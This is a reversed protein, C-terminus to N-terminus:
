NSLNKEKRKTIYYVASFYGIIGILTVVSIATGIKLGPTTYKFEIDYEGAELGIGIFGINTKIVEIEEGNAYATWGKAYPMSLNLVSDETLTINGTFTNTSIELNELSNARLDSVTTSFNDLNCSVVELSDFTYEGTKNFRLEIVGSESNNYGVNISHNENPFYRQGGEAYLAAVTKSDEDLVTFLFDADETKQLNKMSLYLESNLEAGTYNLLIEENIDNITITKNELDIINNITTTTYDSITKSVTPVYNTLGLGEIESEDEVVVAELMAFQRDIVDIEGLQEITIYNSYSFGLNLYNNNEYVYITRTEMNGDEDYVIGPRDYYPVELTDMLTYGFPTVSDQTYYYRIGNLADLAIRNNSGIYGSAGLPNNVENVQLFDYYYKNSISSYMFDSSYDLFAGDNSTRPQWLGLNFAYYDKSIRYFEEDTELKTEAQNALTTEFAGNKLFLRSYEESFAFQVLIISIIISFCMIKKAKKIDTFKVKYVWGIIVYSIFIPVIIAMVLGYVELFKETGFMEYPAIISFLIIIFMIIAGMISINKMDKKDWNKLEKLAYMIGFVTFLSLAYTWRNNSYNFLNLIYGSYNTLLALYSGTLLIKFTKNDSRRFFIPLLLFGITSVYLCTYNLADKPVFMFAIYRAYFYDGYDTVGKGASRAAELFGLGTPILMFSALVVGVIYNTAFKIMTLIFHKVNFKHYNFYRIIIFLITFITTMYFLYYQSILAFFTTITFLLGAYKKNKYMREAFLILLPLYFPANTFFPHRIFTFMVFTSFIYLLSGVIAINKKFGFEKAMYIFAVGVFYLRVICIFNYALEISEKPFILAILNFIDFLGYYTYSVIMDAGLGLNWNWFEFGSAFIKKFMETYDSLFIAHQLAGDTGWIFGKGATLFPTFAIFSLLVFLLSYYKLEQWKNDKFKFIDKFKKM